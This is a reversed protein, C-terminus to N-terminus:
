NYINSSFYIKINKDKIDYKEYRITITTLAGQLDGYTGQEGEILNIIKNIIEIIEPLHYVKIYYNVTFYFAHNDDHIGSKNIIELNNINIYPTSPYNIESTYIGHIDLKDEEILKKILNNIIESIFNAIKTNNTM